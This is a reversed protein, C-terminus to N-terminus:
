LILLFSFLNKVHQWTVYHFGDKMLDDKGYFGSDDKRVVHFNM